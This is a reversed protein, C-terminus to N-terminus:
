SQEHYLRSLWSNASDVEEKSVKRWEGNCFDSTNSREHKRKDKDSFWGMPGFHNDMWQWKVEIM